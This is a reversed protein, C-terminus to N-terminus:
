VVSKRDRGPNKNDGANLDRGFLAVKDHQPNGLEDRGPEIHTLSHCNGATEASDQDERVRVM